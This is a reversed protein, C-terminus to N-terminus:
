RSVIHSAVDISYIVFRPTHNMTLENLLSRNSVPSRGDPMEEIPGESFAAQPQARFESFGIRASDLHHGLRAVTGRIALESPVALRFM